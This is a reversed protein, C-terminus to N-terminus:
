DKELPSMQQKFKNMFKRVLKVRYIIYWRSGIGKVIRWDWGKKEEAVIETCRLLAFNWESNRTLGKKMYFQRVQVTESAASFHSIILKIPM